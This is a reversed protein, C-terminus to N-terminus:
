NKRANEFSESLRSLESGARWNGPANGDDNADIVELWAGKGDADPPWGNKDDYEVSTVLKGSRDLVDLREGGNNLNGRFTGFVQLGPHRIAFANTDASSSLVLAAGPRLLTNEPFIFNIGGLRYFTLDVPFPGNNGLQVFEYADGGIPHYMIKTIRVSPPEGVTFVAENLASWEKGNLTRAKIVVAGPLEVPADQYATAEPSVEGSGYRRPDMGNTTYYIRGRAAEMKLKFGATVAGGQQSFLPADVRPYLGAARLQRLVIANRRPLYSNAVREIEPLWHSERTYLVFRGDFAPHVDRRYDGWRASEAVIPKDLVGAWKRWRAINAQPTLAGGTAIMQAFVRDAFALRYEANAALRTHLGVPGDMRQAINM